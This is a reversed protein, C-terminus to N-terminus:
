KARNVIKLARKVFQSTPFLFRTAQAKEWEYTIFLLEQFDYETMQKGERIIEQLKEILPTLLHGDKDKQKDAELRAIYEEIAGLHVYGKAYLIVNQLYKRTEAEGDNELRYRIKSRTVRATQGMKKFARNAKNQLQILDSPLPAKRAKGFVGKKQKIKELHKTQSETLTLGLLKRAEVNGKSGKYSQGSIKSIRAGGEKRFVLSVSYGRERLKNAMELATM